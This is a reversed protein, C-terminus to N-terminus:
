DSKIAHGQGARRYQNPIAGFRSICRGIPEVKRILRGIQYDYCEMDGAVALCAEVLIQRRFVTRADQGAEEIMPMTESSMCTGQFTRSEGDGVGPRRKASAWPGGIGSDAVSWPVGSRRPFGTVVCLGM